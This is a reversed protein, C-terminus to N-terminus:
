KFDPHNELKRQKVYNLVIWPDQERVSDLNIWSIEGNRWAVKIRVHRDQIIQINPNGKNYTIKRRPVVSLKHKLIGVPKFNWDDEMDDAVKDM